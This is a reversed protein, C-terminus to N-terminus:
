EGQEINTFEIEELALPKSDFSTILLARRRSQGTQYIIPRPTSMVVQRGNSWTNYDDDTFQINVV